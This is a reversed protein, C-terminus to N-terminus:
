NIEECKKVADLLNNGNRLKKSYKLVNEKLSVYQDLSIDSLISDLDNLNDILIGLHKREIFSAIAAKNWVIVPMGSSLYLSTKHPANIKMYEGFIGNCEETSNGDWILGFNSNLHKPLENASYKGIYEINKNTKKPKPEGFLYLKTKKLFLESIFKSKELNGALCISKDYEKKENLPISNLYDFLELKIMPTKVGWNILKSQMGTTHVILADVNNFLNIEKKRYQEDNSRLRLSEVDHILLFIKASENYKKLLEVVKSVIHMSYLPYQIVFEMGKNKNLILPLKTIGYILKQIKNKPIVLDITKFNNNSLIERADQKAKSGADNQNNNLISTIVYKNM